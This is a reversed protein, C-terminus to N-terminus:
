KGIEGGVTERALWSVPATSDLEEDAKIPYWAAWWGYVKM